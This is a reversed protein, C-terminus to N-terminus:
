LCFGDSGGLIYIVGMDTGPCWGFSSLSPADEITFTAWTNTASDYRECTSTPL